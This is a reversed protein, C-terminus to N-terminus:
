PMASLKVVFRFRVFGSTPAELSVHPVFSLPSRSLRSARNAAPPDPVETPRFTPLPFVSATAPVNFTVPVAVNGAAAVAPPAVTAVVVPVCVSVFLVSVEGTTFVGVILPEPPKSVNGAPGSVRTPRAVVSVSVFLVILPELLVIVFTDRDVPTVPVNGTALPPVPAVVSAAFLTKSPLPVLAGCATAGPALPLIKVDSPVVHADEVGEEGNGDCVPFEPFTSVVFPVAADHPELM